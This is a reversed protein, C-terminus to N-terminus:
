ALYRSLLTKKKDKKAAEIAGDLVERLQASLVEAVDGSCALGQAKVYAKIKSNIVLVENEM